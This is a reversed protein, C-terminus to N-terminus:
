IIMWTEKIVILCRCLLNFFLFVLFCMISTKDMEILFSDQLTLVNPHKLQESIEIERKTTEIEKINGQYITKLAFLEEGDEKKVLYVVGQSGKGLRDIVEYDGIFNKAAKVSKMENIGTELIWSSIPNGKFSNIVLIQDENVVCCDMRGQTFNPFEEIRKEYFKGNEFIVLVSYSFYFIFFFNDISCAIRNLDILHMYYIQDVKNWEKTNFNYSWLDNYAIEFEDYGGFIFMKHEVICSSHGYRPPPYTQDTRDIEKGECIVNWEFVDPSIEKLVWLDNKSFVKGAEINKLSLHKLLGGFMYINNEYTCCSHSERPVPFFKNKFGLVKPMYWKYKGSAYSFIWINNFTELFTLQTLNKLTITGNSGGFLLIRQNDIPSL